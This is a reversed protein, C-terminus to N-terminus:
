TYVLGNGRGQNRDNSHSEEQQCGKSLGNEIEDHREQRQWRPKVITFKLEALESLSNESVVQKIKLGTVYVIFM